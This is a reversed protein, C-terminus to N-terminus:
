RECDAPASESTFRRIASAIAAAGFEKVTMAGLEDASDLVSSMIQAEDHMRARFRLREDADCMM